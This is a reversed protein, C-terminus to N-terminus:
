RRIAPRGKSISSTEMSSVEGVPKTGARSHSASSMMEGETSAAFAVDEEAEEASAAESKEVFDVVSFCATLPTCAYSSRDAAWSVSRYRRDTDTSRSVDIGAASLHSSAANVASM